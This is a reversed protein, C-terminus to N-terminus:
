FFDIHGSVMWPRILLIKKQRERFWVVKTQFMKGYRDM